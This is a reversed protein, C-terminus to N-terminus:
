TDALRELQGRVRRRADATRALVFITDDGALTAVVGEVEADDIAIAVANGCGAHTTVVLIGQAEDIDTAFRQLASRLAQRAAPPPPAGGAPPAYRYTGDPGATKLIGLRKVDRSVTAQTVEIGRKGLEDALEKQTRVTHRAVIELLARERHRRSM